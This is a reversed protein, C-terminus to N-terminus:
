TNLSPFQVQSDSSRLQTTGRTKFPKEYMEISLLKGSLFIGIFSQMSIFGDIYTAHGFLQHFSLGRAPVFSHSM